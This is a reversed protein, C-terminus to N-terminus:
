LMIKCLGLPGAGGSNVALFIVTREPKEERSFAKALAALAATWHM